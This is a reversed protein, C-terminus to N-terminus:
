DRLTAAVPLWDPLPVAVCAAEGLWSAVPVPELEGEATSIAEREDVAEGDPVCVALPAAAAVADAVDECVCEAFLEARADRDDDPVCVAKLVPVCDRLTVCVTVLPRVGVAVGDCVDVCAAELEIVPECGTVDDAEEVCFPLGAEPDLEGEWDVEPGRVVDWLPLLLPLVDMDCLADDAGAGALGEVVGSRLIVAVPLLLPAALGPRLALGGACDRVDDADGEAATVLLGLAEGMLLAGGRALLPVAEAEIM